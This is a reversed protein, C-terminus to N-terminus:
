LLIGLRERKAPSMDIFSNKISSGDVEQVKKPEYNSIMIFTIGTLVAMAYCVEKHVHPYKEGVAEPFYMNGDKKDLKPNEGDEDVRMNYYTALLAGGAGYGSLVLGSVLGKRGGLHSWGAVLASQKYFGKIIGSGATYMLIFLYPNM